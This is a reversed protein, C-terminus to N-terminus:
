AVASPLIFHHVWTHFVNHCNRFFNIMSNYYIDLLVSLLSKSINTCAMNMVANSVIALIHFHGLHGKFSSQIFLM